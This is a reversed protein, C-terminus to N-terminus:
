ETNLEGKQRRNKAIEGKQNKGGLFKERKIKERPYCTGFGGPIKDNTSYRLGPFGNVFEPIGDWKGKAAPSETWVRRHHAARM